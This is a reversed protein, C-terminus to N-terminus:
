IVGEWYRANQNRTLEPPDSDDYPKGWTGDPLTGADLPNFDAEDYAIIIMPCFAHQAKWTRVIARIDECVDFPAQQGITDQDDAFDGGWQTGDWTEWQAWLDAPPYIVVWFRWWSTSDGDWNWSGPLKQRVETGDAKITHWNGSNDVHRVKVAYPSLYGRLQRLVEFPHGVHKHAEIWTLNRGAFIADSQAFGRLFGRDRGIAPLATPTGQGPMRAQAGQVLWETLADFAAAISALFRYAVSKGVRNRFWRPVHRDIFYRLGDLTAM